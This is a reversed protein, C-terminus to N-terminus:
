IFSDIPYDNLFDSQKPPKEVKAVLKQETDKYLSLHDSFAFIFKFSFKNIPVDLKAEDGHLPFIAEFQSLSVCDAQCDPHTESLKKNLM